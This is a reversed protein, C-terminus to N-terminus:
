RKGITPESPGDAAHVAASAGQNGSLGKVQLLINATDARLVMPSIAGEIAAGKLAEKVEAPSAEPHAELFIAAAGAVHPVAMSTGSAYAYTTTSVYGCRRIGGCISYIDTGPAFLDVCKGQNGESYVGEAEDNEVAKIAHANSDKNNKTNIFSSYKSSFGSAAVTFAQPTAGPSFQCSDTAGNGAAAIVMVGHDEVLARVADEMARSYHGRQVGLSLTVVAPKRHTSAVYDLGAITSGVTGLGQDDLIKVAIVSAGKAVGVQLGIATGAVHSGHGDVDECNVSGNVFDRGCSARSTSATRTVNGTTSTASVAAAATNNDVAFSSWTQFEQHNSMIGTDLVYITVGQGVGPSEFSGFSYTKDLPMYQQDIRDLNWLPAALTQHKEKLLNIDHGQSISWLDLQDGNIASNQVFNSGPRAQRLSRRHLKKYHPKEKGPQHEAKIVAADDEQYLVSGAPLCTNILLDLEAPSFTGALGGGSLCAGSYVHQCQSPM